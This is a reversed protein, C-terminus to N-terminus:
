HDRNHLRLFGVRNGENVTEYVLEFGFTKYFEVTEDFDKAPCVSTSFDM